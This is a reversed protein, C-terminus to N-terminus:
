SKLFEDLRKLSLDAMTEVGLAKSEAKETAMVISNQIKNNLETFNDFIMDKIYRLEIKTLNEEKFLQNLKDLDAGIELIKNAIIGYKQDDAEIATSEQLKANIESIEKLIIQPVYSVETEINLDHSLMLSLAKMTLGNQNDTSTNLEKSMEGLIATAIPTCKEDRLKELDM